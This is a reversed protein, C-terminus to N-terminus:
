GVSQAQGQAQPDLNVGAGWREWADEFRQTWTMGIVERGRADTEVVGEAMESDSMDMDMDVDTDAGRNTGNTDVRSESGRSKARTSAGDAGDISDDPSANERKRKKALFALYELSYQPAMPRPVDIPPGAFWLV